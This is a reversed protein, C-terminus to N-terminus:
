YSVMKQNCYLECKTLVIEEDRENNLTCILSSVIQSGDVEDFYIQSDTGLGQSSKGDILAVLAVVDAVDVKGDGNVDSMCEINDAFEGIIYSALADVDDTNVKEDFNVDGEMIEKINQFRDWGETTEYLSKTGQPVFLEADSPINYFVDSSITFPNEIKSIVKTLGSCGWFAGRLIVKVSNPITISILSSCDHFAFSAIATVSNPITIATLSSCGYFASEGISSVSSPIKISILNNCGGFLHFPIGDDDAYYHVTVMEDGFYQTYYCGGAKIKVESLDLYTLKGSTFTDFGQVEKSADGRGAMYRILRLGDGNIEGILTLEEIKCM